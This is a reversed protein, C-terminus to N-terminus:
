EGTNATSNKRILFLVTWILCSLGLWLLIEKKMSPNKEEDNYVIEEEQADKQQTTDNESYTEDKNKSEGETSDAMEDNPVDGLKEDVKEKKEISFTAVGSSKHGLEDMAEVYLNYRGSETIRTKGDYEYGNLMMKSELLTLDKFIPKGYDVLSFSEYTKGSIDSIDPLMPATKDILFHLEKDSANGAVDTVLVCISYVGDDKLVVSLKGGTEVREIQPFSLLHEEGDIDTRKGFWEVKDSRYNFENIDVVLSVDSDHLTNNVVGVYEIAPAKKDIHIWRLITETKGKIDTVNVKLPVGRLDMASASVSVEESVKSLEKKKETTPEQTATNEETPKETTNEQTTVEETTLEQTTTEETTAAVTESEEQTTTEQTTATETVVEQVTGEQTIVGEATGEQTTATETTAEETTVEQTTVEETTVVETTSVETTKEETTTEETTVKETTKKETAKEITKEEEHSYEIVVPNGDGVVYELKAIKEKSSASIRINIDKNTWTLPEENEGAVIYKQMDNDIADISIDISKEKKSYAYCPLIGICVVVLACVIKNKYKRM